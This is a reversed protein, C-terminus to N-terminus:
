SPIYVIHTLREQLSLFKKARVRHRGTVCRRPLSYYYYVIFANLLIAEEDIKKINHLLSNYEYKIDDPFFSGVRPCTPHPTTIHVVFM